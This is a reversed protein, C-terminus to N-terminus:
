LKLFDYCIVINEGKLVILMIFCLIWLCVFSIWNDESWFIGKEMILFEDEFEVMEVLGIIMVDRLLSVDKNVFDVM